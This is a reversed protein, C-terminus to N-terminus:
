VPDINVQVTGTLLDHILGSKQKTLKVLTNQEAKLRNTCITLRDTIFLQEPMSPLAVLLQRMEGVNFHQQAMGGQQRLM